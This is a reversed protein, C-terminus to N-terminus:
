KVIEGSSDSVEDTVGKLFKNIDEDLIANKIYDVLSQDVPFRDVDKDYNPVETPDEFVAKLVVKTYTDFHTNYKFYVYNDRITGFIINSNFRGNGAFRMYDYDVVSFPLKMLDETELSLIIPGSKDEILSPITTTSKVIKYLQTTNDSYPYDGVDTVNNVGVTLTISQYINSSIRSNPNKNMFQEIFKARKGIVWKNLLRIDLREDDVVHGARLIEWCMYSIETLTM